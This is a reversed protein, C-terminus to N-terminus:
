PRIWEGRVPPGANPRVRVPRRPQYVPTHAGPLLELAALTELDLRGTVALGTRAQYARLSFELNPSFVGDIPDRYLGRNALEDQASAIVSRQADPASNEFPTGAFLGGPAPPIVNPNQPYLQRDQPQGNAFPQGPAPVTETETSEPAPDVRLDSAAPPTPTSAPTLAPAPAPSPTSPNSRLSRLTEENLEGTIQLGNRIQYRRIAATTDANKEGTVEGYYFGQDKLSQQVSEITQDARVLAITAFLIFGATINRM